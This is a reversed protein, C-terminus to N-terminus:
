QLYPISSLRSIALSKITATANYVGADTAKNNAYQVDAGYPLGEVTVSFESGNYTVTKNPFTVGEFEKLKSVSESVSESSQSFDERSQEVSEGSGNLSDEESQKVSESGKLSTEESQQASESGGVFKVSDDIMMSTSDSASDVKKKKCGVVANLSLATIVALMVILFLKKM